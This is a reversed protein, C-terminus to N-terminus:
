VSSPRLGIGLCLKEAFFFPFQGLNTKSVQPGPKSDQLSATKFTRFSGYISKSMVSQAFFFFRQEYIM